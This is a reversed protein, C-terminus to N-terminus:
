QMFLGGVPVPEEDPAFKVILWNFYGNEDTEAKFKVDTYPYELYVADDNVYYVSGMNVDIQRMPITEGSGLFDYKVCNNTVWNYIIESLDRQEPLEIWDKSEQTLVYYHNTDHKVALKQGINTEGFLPVQYAQSNINIQPPDTVLARETVSNTDLGWRIMDSSEQPCDFIWAGVSQTRGAEYGTDTWDSWDHRNIKFTKYAGNAEASVYIVDEAANIFTGSTIVAKQGANLDYCIVNTPKAYDVWQSYYLMGDETVAFNDYDYWLDEIVYEGSGDMNSIYLKSGGMGYVSEDGYIVMDNWIVFRSHKSIGLKTKGDYLGPDEGFPLEFSTYTVGKYEQEFACRMVTSVETTQSEQPQVNEAKRYLETRIGYPREPEGYYYRPATTDPSTGLAALYCGDPLTFGEPPTIQQRVGDTSNWVFSYACGDVSCDMRITGNERGNTYDGSFVAEVYRDNLYTYQSFSITGSITDNQWVCDRLWFYFESGPEKVWFLSGNGDRKGNTYHGYYWGYGSSWSGDENLFLYLGIGNGTQTKASQEDLFVIRCGNSSPDAVIQNAIQNAQDSQACASMSALDGSSFVNYVQSMYSFDPSGTNQWVQSEQPAQTQTIEYPASSGDAYVNTVTFQKGPYLYQDKVITSLEEYPVTIEIDGAAYPAIAYTSFYLVMGDEAFYWSKGDEVLKKANTPIQATDYLMSYVEQDEYLGEAVLAALREASMPDETMVDTLSLHTGTQSDFNESTIGEGGHAGGTYDTNMISFSIVAEDARMCNIEQTYEYSFDLDYSEADSVSNQIFEEADQDDQALIENQYYANIKDAAQPHDPMSVEPYSRVRHFYEKGVSNTRKIDESIIQVYSENNANQSQTDSQSERQTVNPILLIEDAYTNEMILGGIAATLCFASLTCVQITKKYKKRKDNKCKKM